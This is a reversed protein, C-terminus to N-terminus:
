GEEAKGEEAKGEEAVADDAVEATDEAPAAEPEAEPEPEPAKVAPAKILGHELLIAVKDDGNIAKKNAGTVAHRDDGRLFVTYADTSAIVKM